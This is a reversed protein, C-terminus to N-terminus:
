WHWQSVREERGELDSELCGFFLFPFSWLGQLVDVDPHHMGIVRCRHDRRPAVGFVGALPIVEEVHTNPNARFSSAEIGTDARRQGDAERRNAKATGDM